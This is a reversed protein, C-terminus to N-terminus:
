GVGLTLSKRARSVKSSQRSLLKRRHLDKRVIADGPRRFHLYCHYPPVDPQGSCGANFYHYEVAGEHNDLIPSIEVSEDSIFFLPDLPNSKFNM